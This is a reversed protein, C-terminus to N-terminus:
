RLVGVSMTYNENIKYKIKPAAQAGPTLHM